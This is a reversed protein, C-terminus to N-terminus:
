ERRIAAASEPDIRELTSAALSSLFIDEDNAMAILAPVLEKRGPDITGLSLTAARRVDGDADKLLPVLHATAREAAVGVFGLALAASTRIRADPNELLVVLAPVAASGIQGLALASVPTERLPRPVKERQILMILAPIANSAAPGIAGLALAADWANPEGLARILIPISDEAKATIQWLARASTVRVQSDRDRLRTQLRPVVRDATAGMSGLSTAAAARVKADTDSLAATLADIATSGGMAGLTSAAMARVEPAGDGLLRVSERIANTASPGFDKLVELAYYRTARSGSSLADILEPVSSEPGIRRLSRQAEKVVVSQEDVFARALTRPVRPDGHMSPCALQEAARARGLPTSSPQIRLAPLFRGARQLLEEALGPRDHLKRALFPVAEPGAAAFRAEAQERAQYDAGALDQFYSAFARERAAEAPDTSVVRFLWYACLGLALAGALVTKKV